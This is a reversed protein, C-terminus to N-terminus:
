QLQSDTSGRRDIGGRAKFAGNREQQRELCLKM